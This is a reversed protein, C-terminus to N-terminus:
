PEIPEIKYLGAPVRVHFWGDKDSVITRTVGMGKVLFHIGRLDDSGENSGVFGLIDGDLKANISQIVEKVESIKKSYDPARSNIADYCSGLLM